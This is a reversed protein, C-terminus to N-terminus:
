RNLNLVKYVVEFDTVKTFLGYVRVMIQMERFQAFYQGDDMRNAIIREQFKADYTSFDTDCVLEWGADPDNLDGVERVWIEVKDTTNEGEVALIIKDIQKNVYPQDGNYIKTIFGSIVDTGDIDTAGTGDVNSYLFGNDILDFSDVPGETFEDSITYEFQLDGSSNISFIGYMVGEDNPFGTEQHQFNIAGAFYIRSNFAVSKYYLQNIDGEIQRLEYQAVSGARSRPVFQNNSIVKKIDLTVTQHVRRSRTAPSMIALLDGDAVNMLQVAGYGMDVVSDADGAGVNNAVSSVLDWFYVYARGNEERAAVALYGGYEAMATIEGAVQFSYPTEVIGGTCQTNMAEATAANVIGTVALPPNATQFDRVGQETLPGFIGDVPGVSIATAFGLNHLLAQMRAITSTITTPTAINANGDRDGRQLTFEIQERETCTRSGAPFIEVTHVAGGSGVYLRGDQSHNVFFTKKDFSIPNFYSDQVLLQTSTTLDSWWVENPGTTHYAVGDQYPAPVIGFSVTKGPNINVTGTLSPANQIEYTDLMAGPGNNHLVYGVHNLTTDQTTQAVSFDEGVLVHGQSPSLNVLGYRQTLVDNEAKFNWVRAFKPVEFNTRLDTTLGGTFRNIKEPVKKPM